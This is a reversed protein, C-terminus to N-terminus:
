PRPMKIFDSWKYRWELYAALGDIDPFLAARNVGCVDLTRKISFCILKKPIHWLEVKPFDANTAPEPHVTFIGQQAAIRPAIHPPRYLKIKPLHFPDELPAARDTMQVAFISAPGGVGAKEVAFFVAALFSESWDLLRTPLGHHQAVALWELDGQPQHNLYPRSRRKFHEFITMEENADYMIPKNNADRRQGQRGIKPRLEYPRSQGRFIWGTEAAYRKALEALEAWDNIEGQPTRTDLNNAPEFTPEFQTVEARPIRITADDTLSTSSMDRDKAM